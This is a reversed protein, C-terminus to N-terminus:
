CFVSRGSKLGTYSLFLGGAMTITIYVIGATPQAELLHISDASFTSFTTFSGLMGSTVGIKLNQDKFPYSALFALFFSGALNVALTGIYSIDGALLTLSYRLTAGVFAFLAVYLYKM